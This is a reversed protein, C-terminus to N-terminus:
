HIGVGTFHTSHHEGGNEEHMSSNVQGIDCLILHCLWSKFRSRDTGFCAM